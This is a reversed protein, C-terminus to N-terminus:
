FFFFIKLFFFFFLFFNKVTYPRKKQFDQKVETGIVRVEINSLDMYMYEKKALDEGAKMRDTDFIGSKKTTGDSFRYFYERDEFQEKKAVHYIFNNFLLRQGLKIAEDRSIELNEMMWKVADSGIFCNEYTRMHYKRDKLEIEERMM